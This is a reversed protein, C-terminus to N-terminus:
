NIQRSKGAAHTTMKRVLIGKTSVNVSVNIEPMALRQLTEKEQKQEAIDFGSQIPVAACTEGDGRTNHFLQDARIGTRLCPDQSSQTNDQDNAAM